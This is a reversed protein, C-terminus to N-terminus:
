IVIDERDWLHRAGPCEWVTGKWHEVAPAELFCTLLLHHLNNHKTPPVPALIVDQM